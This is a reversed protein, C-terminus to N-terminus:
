SFPKNPCLNLSTMSHKSFTCLAPKNYEKCENRRFSLFKFSSVMLLSITVFCFFM